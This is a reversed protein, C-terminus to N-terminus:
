GAPPAMEKGFYLAEPLPNHYYAPIERYHLSRYLHVAGSMTRLTDLVIMRYGAASVRQELEFVLASGLGRGRAGPRVWLRKMECTDDAFPRFAICGVVEDGDSALLVDGGPTAYKGPLTALEEEFGQFCLDVNLWRAYELFLTRVLDAEAPFRASRIEM